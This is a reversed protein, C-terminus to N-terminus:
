FVSFLVGARCFGSRGLWSDELYRFGGVTM